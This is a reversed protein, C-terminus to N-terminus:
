ERRGLIALSEPFESAARYCCRLFVRAAGDRVQFRSGPKFSLTLKDPKTEGGHQPPEHFASLRLQVLVTANM